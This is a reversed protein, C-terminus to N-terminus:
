KKKGKHKTPDKRFSYKDFGKIEAMTIDDLEPIPKIPVAQNGMWMSIEQFAQYPDFVRYFEFPKLQANYTVKGGYKSDNLGHQAVFVPSRHKDFWKRRWIENRRLEEQSPEKDWKSRRRGSFFNDFNDHRQNGSWNNKKSWGSDMYDSYSKPYHQRVFADVNGVNYAWKRTSRGEKDNHGRNEITNLELLSYLKGCFGITYSRVCLSEVRTEWMSGFPYHRGVQDDYEEVIPFRNYVLTQDQGEAMAVDYYDHFDSTIKMELEKTFVFVIFGIDCYSWHFFWSALTQVLWELIHSCFYQGVM